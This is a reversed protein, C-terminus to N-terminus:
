GDAIIDTWWLGKDQVLVQEVVGKGLVLISKVAEKLVQNEKELRDIKEMQETITRKQAKNTAKLAGIRTGHLKVLQMAAVFEDTDCKDDDMDEPTTSSPEPEYESAPPTNASSDRITETDSAVSSSTDLESSVDDSSQLSEAIPLRIPHEKQIDSCTM